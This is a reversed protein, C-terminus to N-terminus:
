ILRYVRSKLSDIEKAVAKLYRNILIQRQGKETVDWLREAAVNTIPDYPLARAVPDVKEVIFLAEAKELDAMEIQMATHLHVMEDRYKEVLVLPLNEDKVALLLEALKM